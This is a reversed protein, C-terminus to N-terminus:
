IEGQCIFIHGTCDVTKTFREEKKEGRKGVHKLCFEQKWVPAM